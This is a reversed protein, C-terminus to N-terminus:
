DTGTNSTYGGYSTECINEDSVSTMVSCLKKNFWALNDFLTRGNSDTIDEM